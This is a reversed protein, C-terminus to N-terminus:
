VPRINAYARAKVLAEAQLVEEPALGDKVGGWWESATLERLSTNARIAPLFRDRAFAATMDVDPCDLQRLHTNHPLADVLPALAADGLACYSVSLTRLAPANAVILAGLAAGVMLADAEADADADADDDDHMRNNVLSLEQLSPHATLATILIAGAGADHWLSVHNLGLAVLTTNARLADALLVATDVDLLQDGYNIVTLRTLAASGLLRALAPASALSLTCRHLDLQAIRAALAADVFADLVTPMGLPIDELWAGELSAHQHMAAALELLDADDEREDADDDCVLLFRVRLPGFPAENRLMRAIEQLSNSHTVDTRFVQLQPAAALVREVMSFPFYVETTSMETTQELERLSVRNAHLVDLVADFFPAAELSPLALAQMHGAARAAVARLLAPTVAHTVGSAASLNVRLWLSRDLVAARWTRCVEACRLRADVPLAALVRVVLSHPLSSFEVRQRRRSVGSGGAGSPATQQTSLAGRLRSLTASVADVRRLLAGTNGRAAVASPTALACAALLSAEAAALASTMADDGGDPPAADAHRAGAPPLSAASAMTHDHASTLVNIAALV